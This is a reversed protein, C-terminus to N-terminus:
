EKKPGLKKALWDFLHLLPFKYGHATMYNIERNLDWLAAQYGQRYSEDSQRRKEVERGIDYGIACCAIIGAIIIIPILLEM